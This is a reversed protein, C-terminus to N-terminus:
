LKFILINDNELFELLSPPKSSQPTLKRQQFTIQLGNRTMPTERHQSLPMELPPQKLRYLTPLELLTCRKPRKISDLKSPRKTNKMTTSPSNDELPTESLPTEPTRPMPSHSQHLVLSQSKKNELMPSTSRRDLKTPNKM